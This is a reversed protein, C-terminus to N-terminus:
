GSELMGSRLAHEIRGSTWDSPRWVGAQIGPVSGLLAHWERQEPRVRGKEAKLEIALLSGSRALAVDPWGKGGFGQVIARDSRRVSYVRWGLLGALQIVARKLADESM